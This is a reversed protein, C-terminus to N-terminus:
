RQCRNERHPGCSKMGPSCCAPPADSPLVVEASLSRTSAALLIAALMSNKSLSMPRAGISFWRYFKLTVAPMKM